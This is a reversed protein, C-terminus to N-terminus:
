SGGLSKRLSRNEESLRRVDTELQRIYDVAYQLLTTKSPRPLTLPLVQKLGHFGENLDKRRKRETVCKKKKRAVSEARKSPTPAVM